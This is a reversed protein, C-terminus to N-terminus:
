KHINVFNQTHYQFSPCVSIQIALALKKFCIILKGKPFEQKLSQFVQEFIFQMLFLRDAANVRHRKSLPANKMKRAKENELFEEANMKRALEDEEEIALMRKQKEADPVIEKNKEKHHMFNTFECKTKQKTPDYWKRGVDESHGTIVKSKNKMSENRQVVSEQVCRFTTPNLNPNGSALGVKSLLSGSSNQLRGLPYGSGNLFFQSSM